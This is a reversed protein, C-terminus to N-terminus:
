EYLYPCGESPCLMGCFYPPGDDKWCANRTGGCDRDSKCPKACHTGGVLILGEKCYGVCVGDCIQGPEESKTLCTEQNQERCADFDPWRDCVGQPTCTGGNCPRGPGCTKACFTGGREPGMGKPCPNFCASDDRCRLGPGGQETTCLTTNGSLGWRPLPYNRWDGEPPTEYPDAEEPEPSPEVEEQLSQAESGADEAETLATPKPPAPPCAMWVTAAVLGAFLGALLRSNPSEPAPARPSPLPGSM